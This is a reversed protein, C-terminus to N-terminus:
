ITHLNVLRASCHHNSSGSLNKCLVPSCRNLLIGTIHSQARHNKLSNIQAALTLSAGNPRVVLLVPLDLTDAVHWASAQTTIGGVGDYLGMVGECISANHGACGQAYIERVTNEDSLFLDLNLSDAGVASRHFMPDIYDPGCKFACPSFGRRQLARLLACVVMTKGAGSNPAAILFQIM